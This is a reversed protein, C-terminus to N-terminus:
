HDSAGWLSDCSMGKCGRVQGIGSAFTGCTAESQYCM